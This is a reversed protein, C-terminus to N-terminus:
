TTVETTLLKIVDARAADRNLTPHPAPRGCDRLATAALFLNLAYVRQTTWTARVAEDARSLLAADDVLALDTLDRTM